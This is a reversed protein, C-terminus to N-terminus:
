VVSLPPLTVISRVFTPPNNLVRTKGLLDFGEHAWWLPKGQQHNAPSVSKAGKKEHVPRLQSKQINSFSFFFHDLPLRWTLAHCMKKERITYFSNKWKERERESMGNKWFHVFNGNITVRLFKNKSRATSRWWCFFRQEILFQGHCGGRLRAGRWHAM